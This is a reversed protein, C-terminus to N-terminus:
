KGKFKHFYEVAKDIGIFTVLASVGVRIEYTLDFYSLCLFISVCLLIGGFFAHAQERLTTNNEGTLNVIGCAIAIIVLPLFEIIRDM